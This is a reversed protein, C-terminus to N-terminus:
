SGIWITIKLIGELLGMIQTMQPVTKITQPKIM